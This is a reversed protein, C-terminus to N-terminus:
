DWCFVMYEKMETKCHPCIPNHKVTENRYEDESFIEAVRMDGGCKKCKHPYEAYLSYCAELEDSDVYDSGEFPASVSWIGGPIEHTFGEKLVYMALSERSDYEGCNECRMVVNECNIAGDPHEDFFHKAIDGLEGRKMKGVTEAYIMPFAFGVGTIGDFGYGCEPCQFFIGSGMSSDEGGPM